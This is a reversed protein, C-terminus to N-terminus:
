RDSEIIRHYPAGTFEYNIEVDSYIDYVNYRM